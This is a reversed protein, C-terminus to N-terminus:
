NNSIITEIVPLLVKAMRLFGLDTLHIGDVTAEGDDGIYNDSSLYYINKYGSSKLLEFQRKLEANKDRVVKNIEKDFQMHTFIVSEMFLIPIDNNQARLREVFPLFKDKLQEMSVNPIFDLVYLGADTREAMLDAIEYDLQGNGSFGLNIIEKNLSRSLINTYSMGPRTACGGQTISTGYVIIPSSTIPLNLSPNEIYSISDVGIQLDLVGDYLPLYLMYERDIPELNSIITVENTKGTPRATNVFRWSGDVCAYLDLGKIGIDTMHNMHNDFTVEWKASISSSNTKFRIALGSTNKGLNWVAPRSQEKLFIPLREYLTETETLIKGILKLNSADTYKIQSQLITTSCLLLIFFFKLKYLTM